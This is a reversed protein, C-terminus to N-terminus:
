ISRPQGYDTKLWLQTLKLALNTPDMYYGEIMSM